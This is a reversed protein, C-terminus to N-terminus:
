NGHPGAKEDHIEMMEEVLIDSLLALYRAQDEDAAAREPVDSRARAARLQWEAMVRWTEMDRAAIAQQALGIVLVFAGALALLVALTYSHEYHARRVLGAIVVVMVLLLVAWCVRDVAQGLGRPRVALSPANLSFDVM